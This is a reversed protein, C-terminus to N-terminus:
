LYSRYMVRSLDNVKDESVVRRPNPAHIMRGNGIYIGVHGSSLGWFVLDGPQPNSVQTGERQQMAANHPLKVGVQRYAMMTLGSCDWTDPGSAAFVYKEGLQARAFSVVTGRANGSSAADTKGDGSPVGGVQGSATKGAAGAERDFGMGYSTGPVLQWPLASPEEGSALAIATTLPNRNKAAAWMLYVGTGMLLWALFRM